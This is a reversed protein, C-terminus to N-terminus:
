AETLACSAACRCWSWFQAPEPQPIWEAGQHEHRVGGTRDARHQVGPLTARGHHRARRQHNGHEEAKRGLGPCRGRGPLDAEAAGRAERRAERGVDVVVDDAAVVRIHRDLDVGGWGPLRRDVLTRKAAAVEALRRRQAGPSGEHEGHSLDTARLEIPVVHAAQGVVEGFVGEGAIPRHRQLVERRGAREGGRFGLVPHDEVVVPHRDPPDASPGLADPHERVPGDEPVIVGDSGGAPLDVAQISAEYAGEVADAAPGVDVVQLQQAVAVVQDARVDPLLVDVRAGVAAGAVGLTM